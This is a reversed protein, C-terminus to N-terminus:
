KTRRNIIKKDEPLEVIIRTDRGNQKNLVKTISCYALVYPTGDIAVEIPSDQDCKSLLSVFDKVLM